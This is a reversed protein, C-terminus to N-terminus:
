VCRQDEVTQLTAAIDTAILAALRPRDVGVVVPRATDVVAYRGDGALDRWYIRRTAPGHPGFASSGQSTEIVGLVDVPRHLWDTTRRELEVYSDYVPSQGHWHDTDGCEPSSVMPIDPLRGADRAPLTGVVAGALREAAGMTIVFGGSYWMSEGPIQRILVAVPGQRAGLVRVRAGSDEPNRPDVAHAIVQVDPRAVRQLADQLSGDYRAQLGDWTAAALHDYEDTYHVRLLACLPAPLRDGFLKDWAVVLEADTLNWTISM